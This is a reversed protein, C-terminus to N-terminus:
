LKPEEFVGNTVIRNWKGGSLFDIILFMIVFM